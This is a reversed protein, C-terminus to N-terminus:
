DGKPYVQQGALFTRQVELDAIEEPPVARPDASLVVMDAYKGVELSGVVDDAFLQWAADITQARGGRNLRGLEAHLMAPYDSPSIAGTLLSFM